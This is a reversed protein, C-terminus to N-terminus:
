LRAFAAEKTQFVKDRSPDTAHRYPIAAIAADLLARLKATITESTSAAFNPIKPDM